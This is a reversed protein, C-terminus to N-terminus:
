KRLIRLEASKEYKIRTPKYKFESDTLEYKAGVDMFAADFHSDADTQLAESSFRRRTAAWERQRLASM